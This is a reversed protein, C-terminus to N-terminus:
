VDREGRVVEMDAGSLTSLDEDARDSRRILLISPSAKTCATLPGTSQLLKKVFERDRLQVVRDHNVGKGSKKGVEVVDRAGQFVPDCRLSGADRANLM